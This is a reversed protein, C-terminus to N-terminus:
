SYFETVRIFGPAGDGGDGGSQGADSCGAGSGGAGYAGALPSIGDTGSGTVSAGGDGFLSDAGVAGPGSSPHCNTLAPGILGSLIDGMSFGRIDVTGVGGTLNDGGGSILMTGFSSDGGAGPVTPTGGYSYALGGIGGAGVTLLIPTTLAEKLINCRIYAGSAGGSGGTGSSGGGSGGKGGGGGSGAGQVEILAYMFNTAVPKNWISTATYERIVSCSSVQGDVGNITQFYLDITALATWGDTTNKFMVSGGSYGGAVNTALNPHNTTDTTSTSVVAWYLGGTVLSDYETTFMTDFLAGDTLLVWDANLITTTALDSGSPEGSNDAQLSVTVTGTFTGSDALKWLEVGKIKSRGATFSQALLQKKTTSDAEGVEVSGDHTTQSQDFEDSYINDDTVYKNTSSPTGTTGTLAAKEDPTIADRDYINVWVLRNNADGVGVIVSNTGASTALAGATDALYYISGATYTQTKDIGGTFVGGAIANGDTGAGQAIGLNVNVSKAPDDADTLYWEGDVESQYLSEGSAVTEGARAAIVTQDISVTGGNVLTLVKELTTLQNNGTITASGDYEIPTSADYLDTGNLLNNQYLIHAFNTITVTAGLRHSRVVGTTLVGQRSISVINSIATGVLDCSVHEKSANGNDLSFFYRGSPLAVSDDDTASSLTATTGGIGIGTALSTTFDAVIIALKTSM